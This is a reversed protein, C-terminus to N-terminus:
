MRIPGLGSHSLSDLGGLRPVRTPVIGFAYAGIRAMKDQGRQKLSYQSRQRLTKSFAVSAVVHHERTEIGGRPWRRGDRCSHHGMGICLRSLLSSVESTQMRKAEAAPAINRGGTM